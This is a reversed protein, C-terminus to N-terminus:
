SPRSTRLIKEWERPFGILSLNVADYHSILANLSIVFTNWKVNNNLLRKTVILVPFIRGLRLEEHERYLRPHSTLERNYIRGYHACINRAEVLCRIWSIFYISNTGYHHAITAQDKSKLNSFFRSLMGFSFLEIAVWIPMMGGYKEMHHKVFASNRQKSTEAKLEDIFSCHHGKNRFYSEDTYAMAGYTIALYYAIQTRLKIEITEIIELLLHRFRSDFQYLQYIHEFTVGDYFVNDKRLGLSYASLRYYNVQELVQAALQPNSIILGRSELLSIQEDITLPPKIDNGM